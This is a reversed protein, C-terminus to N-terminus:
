KGVLWFWSAGGGERVIGRGLGEMGLFRKYGGGSGM